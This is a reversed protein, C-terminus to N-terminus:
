RTAPLLVPAAQKLTAVALKNDVKRVGPQLRVLNAALRQAALNPVSGTLTATGKSDVTVSVGGFEPRYSTVRQLVPRSEQLLRDTMTPKPYAFGIRITTPVSRPTGTTSRNTATPVDGATGLSQFQRNGNRDTTLAAGIFNEFSNGGVFVGTEAAPGSGIGDTTSGSGGETTGGPNIAAAGTGGGANGGGGLQGIQAMASPAIMTVIAAFLFRQILKHM